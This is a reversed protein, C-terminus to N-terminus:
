EADRGASMGVLASKVTKLANHLAEREDEAMETVMDSLLAKALTRVEALM